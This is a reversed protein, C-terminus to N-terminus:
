RTVYSASVYGKQGGVSVRLWDGEDKLIELLTGKALTALKESQTSAAARLTVNKAVTGVQGSSLVTLYSKSAYGSKGNYKIQYSDGSSGLIEVIEGKTLKYLVTSGSKNRVNLETATVKAKKTSATTSSSSSSGSSVSKLSGVYKKLVYGTQGGVRIKYYDGSKKLVEVSTGKSLAALPEGSTSATPRLNVNDATIKGTAAAKETSSSGSSASGGSSDTDAAM